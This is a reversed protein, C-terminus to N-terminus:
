NAMEVLLTSTCQFEKTNVYATMSEKSVYVYAADSIM